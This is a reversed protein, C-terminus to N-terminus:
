PRSINRRTVVISAIHEKSKLRVRAHAIGGREQAGDWWSIFTAIIYNGPPLTSFTFRGKEQPKTIKVYPEIREDLALTFTVRCERPDVFPLLSSGQEPAPRSHCEGQRDVFKDFWEDTYASRPILYVPNTAYHTEDQDDSWLYAHGTISALGKAKYPLFAREIFPTVISADTLSNNEKSEAPATSYSGTLLLLGLLTSTYGRM